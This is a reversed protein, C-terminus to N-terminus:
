NAILKGGNLLQQDATIRYFYVGPILNSPHIQFRNETSSQEYMLRGSVDFLEFHINDFQKGEIEITAREHFPNPYVQIAVNPIEITEIGVIIFNEGIEHFTTNTRVPANFDFYIDANNNIITGIPNNPQQKINYKVFGQSAALNTSSDPLLINDFTFKVVGNGYIEYTYPHSSAGAIFSGVDLHSSLSDIIVVKFATDTGTNQFRIYYELDTHQFIYHEQEYGVPYALKDNPDYSGINPQCDIDIFPSGDYNSYQTVFGTSIGGAPNTTCGEYALAILTDGLLPPFNPVQRAEIRYTHGNTTPVWISETQGNGLNYNGTRMMVNDEFINYSLANSMAGGSNNISFLLSDGFCTADLNINPGTWPALCISDPYIHAETCHTFGAITTDCGVTVEISFNGCDGRPVTGLDFQYLNNGLHLGSISSSNYTIFTDFQVQVYANQADAMGWNCYNVYYHSPFCLRLFPAAIDVNLLPCPILASVPFNVTDSQFPAYFTVTDSAICVTDWYPNPVNLTITYFGYEVEMMYNGLSDTNAYYTQGNNGTATVIWNELTYELSDKTCSNDLDAYVNGIITNTLAHGASDMKILVKKSNFTAPNINQGVVIYGGDLTTKIGHGQLRPITFSDYLFHRRWIVNGNRDMKVVPLTYEPSGSNFDGVYGTVVLNSDADQIIDLAACDLSATMPEATWLVTGSTDLKVVLMARSNPNQATDIKYGAAIYNGDLTEQISEGHWQQTGVNLEQTWLTNGNADLKVIHMKQSFNPWSGLRITGIAIFNGDSTARVENGYDTNTNGISKTWISDGQPNLKAVFLDQSGASNLQSRGCVIFNGDQTSRISHLPSSFLWVNSFILNGQPDIKLVQADNNQSNIATAMITDNALLQLSTIQSTTMPFVSQWVTDGQPNIRLVIGGGASSSGGTIFDGNSAVVVDYGITHNGYTFNRIWGQGFLTQQTILFLCVLIYYFYNTKM